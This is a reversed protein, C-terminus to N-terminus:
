ADNAAIRVIFKSRALPPSSPNRIFISDIAKQKSLCFLFEYFCPTSFVRKNPCAPAWQGNRLVPIEIPRHMKKPYWFASIFVRGANEVSQAPARFTM